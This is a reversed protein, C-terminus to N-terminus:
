LPAIHKMFLMINDVKIFQKHSLCNLSFNLMPQNLSPGWKWFRSSKAIQYLFPFVSDNLYDMVLKGQSKWYGNM